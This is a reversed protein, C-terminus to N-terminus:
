ASKGAVEQLKAQYQRAQRHDMFLEPYAAAVDQWQGDRRAWTTEVLTGDKEWRFHQQLFMTLDHIEQPGPNWGLLPPETLLATEGRALLDQNIARVAQRLSRPHLLCTTAPPNGDDQIMRMGNVIGYLFELCYQAMMAQREPIELVYRVTPEKLRDEHIQKMKEATHLGRFETEWTLEAALIGLDASPVSAIQRRKNNPTTAFVKAPQTINRTLVEYLYGSQPRAWHTRSHKTHTAHWQM